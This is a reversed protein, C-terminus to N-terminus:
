REDKSLSGGNRGGGGTGEKKGFSVVNVDM